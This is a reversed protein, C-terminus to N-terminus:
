SCSGNASCTLTVTKSVTETSGGTYRLKAYATGIAKNGTKSSTKKSISWRSNYVGADVTSKTCTSTKGNYSFTGTVSVYWLKEGNSNKITSTKKATRTSTSKSYDDKLIVVKEEIIYNDDSIAEVKKTLIPCILVLITLFIATRKFKSM